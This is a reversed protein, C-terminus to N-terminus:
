PKPAIYPQIRHSSPNMICLTFRYEMKYLIQQLLNNYNLSLSASYIYINTYPESLREKKKIIKQYLVNFENGIEKDRKSGQLYLMNVHMILSALEM